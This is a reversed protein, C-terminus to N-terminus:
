SSGTLRRWGSSVADDVADYADATAGLVDATLQLSGGAGRIAGRGALEVAGLAPLLLPTCLLGLAGGALSVSAAADEAADIGGRVGRVRAAHARMAGTHVSFGTM